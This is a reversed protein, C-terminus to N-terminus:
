RDAFSGGVTDYQSGVGESLYVIGAIIAIAVLTAVLMYELATAGGEDRLFRDM